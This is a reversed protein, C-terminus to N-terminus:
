EICNPFIYCYSHLAQWPTKSKGVSVSLFSAQNCTTFLHLYKVSCQLDEGGVVCSCRQECQLRLTENIPSQTLEDLQLSATAASVLANGLAVQIIVAAHLFHKALQQVADIGIAQSNWNGRPNLTQILYATWVIGFDAAVVKCCLDHIVSRVALHLAHHHHFRHLTDGHLHHEVLLAHNHAALWLAGIKKLQGILFLHQSLVDRGEKLIDTQIVFAVFALLWYRPFQRLAISLSKRAEHNQFAHLGAIQKICLRHCPVQRGHCLVRREMQEGHPDEGVDTPLYTTSVADVRIDIHHSLTIWEMESLHCNACITANVRTMWSQHAHEESLIGCLKHTSRNGSQHGSEKMRQVRQLFIVVRILWCLLLRTAMLLFIRILFFVRPQLRM